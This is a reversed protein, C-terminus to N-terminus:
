YNSAIRFKNVEVKRLYAVFVDDATLGFLRILRTLSLFTMYLDRRFAFVNTQVNTKRWKRNKLKNIAISLKEVFTSHENRLFARYKPNGKDIDFWNQLTDGPGTHSCKLDDATLGCMILLEIYFSLADAVEDKIHERDKSGTVVELAESVEEITNWAFERALSQDSPVDLNLIPIGFAIRLEDQKEFIVHMRDRGAYQTRDISVESINM